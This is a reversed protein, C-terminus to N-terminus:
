LSRSFFPFVSPYISLSHFLLASTPFPLYFFLPFTFLLSFFFGSVRLGRQQLSAANEFKNQRSVVSLQKAIYFLIQSNQRTLVLGVLLSRHTQGRIESSKSRFPAYRILAATRGDEEGIFVSATSKTGRYYDKSKRLKTRTQQTKQKQSVVRM